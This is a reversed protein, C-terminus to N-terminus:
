FSQYNACVVSEGYSLRGLKKSAISKGAYVQVQNKGAYVVKSAAFATAFPLALALIMILALVRKMELM